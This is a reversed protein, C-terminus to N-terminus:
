YSLQNRVGIVQPKRYLPISSTVPLLMFWCSCIQTVGDQLHAIVVDLKDWNLGTLYGVTLFVDPIKLFLFTDMGWIMWTMWIIFWGHHSLSGPGMTVILHQQRQQLM